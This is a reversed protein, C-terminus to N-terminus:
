VRSGPAITAPATLRAGALWTGNRSGLDQVEIGHPLVALRAHRRSVTPHSIAIGCDPHSGVVHEGEALLRRETRDGLEISLRYAM